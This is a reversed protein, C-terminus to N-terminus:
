LKAEILQVVESKNLYKEWELPTYNDKNTRTWDTSPHNLLLKVINYDDDYQVACHLPRVAEGDKLIAEENPDAGMTLLYKWWIPVAIGM